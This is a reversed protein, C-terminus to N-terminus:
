PLLFRGILMGVVLAIAGVVALNLRRPAPPDEEGLRGPLRGRAKTGPPVPIAKGRFAYGFKTKRAGEPQKDM